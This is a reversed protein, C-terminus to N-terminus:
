MEKCDPNNSYILKVEDNVGTNCISKKAIDLLHTKGEKFTKLDVILSKTVASYQSGDCTGVVIPEQQPAFLALPDIGSNWTALTLVPPDIILDGVVLKGADVITNTQFSVTTVDNTKVEITQPVFRVTHIDPETHESNPVIQIPAGTGATTQARATCTCVALSVAIAALALSARSTPLPMQSTRM